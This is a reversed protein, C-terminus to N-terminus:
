LPASSSETDFMSVSVHAFICIYMCVCICMCCSCACAIKDIEVETCNKGQSFRRKTELDPLIPDNGGGSGQFILDSNFGIITNSSETVSVFQNM